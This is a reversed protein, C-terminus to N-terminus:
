AIRARPTLEAGVEVPLSAEATCGPEVVRLMLAGPGFGRVVNWPLPSQRTLARWVHLIGSGM